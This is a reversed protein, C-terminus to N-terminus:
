IQDSVAGSVELHSGPGYRRQQDQPDVVREFSRRGRGVSTGASWGVLPAPGGVVTELFAITDEAM